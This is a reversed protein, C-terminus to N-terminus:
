KFFLVRVLVVSNLLVDRHSEEWGGKTVLKLDYICVAGAPAPVSGGGPGNRGAAAAARGRTAMRPQRPMPPAPAGGAPSLLLPRSALLQRQGAAGWGLSSHGKESKKKKLGLCLLM